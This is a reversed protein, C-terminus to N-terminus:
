APSSRKKANYVTALFWSAAAGFSCTDEATGVSVSATGSLSGLPNSLHSEIVSVDDSIPRSLMSFAHSRLGAGRSQSRPPTARLADVSKAGGEAAQRPAPLLLLAAHGWGAAQLGHCLLRRLWLRHVTRQVPRKGGCSLGPGPGVLATRRRLRAWSAPLVDAAAGDVQSAQLRLLLLLIRVRGLELRTLLLLLRWLRLRWPRRRRRLSLLVLVARAIRRLAAARGFPNGQGAGVRRLADRRRLHHRLREFVLALLRRRNASVHGRKGAGLGKGRGRGVRRRRRHRGSGLRSRSGGRGGRRGARPLPRGLRLWLLRRLPSLLRCPLRRRLHRARPLGLRGRLGRDRHEAAPSAGVVPLPRDLGDLFAARALLAASPRSRLLLRRRSRRWRRRRRGARGAPAAAAPRRRVLLHGRRREVLRLARLEARELNGLQARQELAAPDLHRALLRGLRREQLLDLGGDGGASQREDWLGGRRLTPACLAASCLRRLPRRALARCLRLLLLSGGLGGLGGRGLRLLLSRGLGGCCLRRLHRRLRRRNRLLHRLRRRRSRFRSHRPQRRARPRQGPPTPRPRTEPAARCDPAAAM